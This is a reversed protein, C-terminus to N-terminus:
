RGDYVPWYAWATEGKREQDTLEVRPPSEAGTGAFYRTLLALAEVESSATGIPECDRTFDPRAVDYVPYAVM